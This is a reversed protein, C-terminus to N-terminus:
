YDVQLYNLLHIIQKQSQGISLIPKVNLDDIEEILFNYNTYYDQDAAIRM